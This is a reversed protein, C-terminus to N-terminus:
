EWEITLLSSNTNHTNSKGGAVWFWVLELVM